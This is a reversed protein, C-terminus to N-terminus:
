RAIFKKINRVQEYRIEWLTAQISKESRKLAIYKASWDLDFIKGWSDVIIKHFTKNPLPKTKYYCLNHQAIMAKFEKSSKESLPLYCYNLVYYWLEYDSLLVSNEDIEFEVRIGYEGKQSLGGSRLDPRKRKEGQWQYWAWVPWTDDSPKPGIRACMQNSLWRYPEIHYKDIYRLNGRLFGKSKLKNWAEITLISWLIMRYEKKEQSGNADMGFVNAPSKKKIKM